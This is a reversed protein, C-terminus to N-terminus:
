VTDGKTGRSSNMRKRIKEINQKTQEIEIKAGIEEFIQLAQQLHELAKDPEGKDDFLMGMNHLQKAEWERNGIDRDVKLARQYYDLAKDHEKQSLYINGINVLDQAQGERYGIKKDIKLAQQHCDLAKDLKKQSLYINGINGLANAEGWKRGMEREIKFVREYLELAKDMEGETQYVLGTNGLAAALGEDDKAQTAAAEAERYHGEAEELESLHFCCNGILIHLAARQSTTTEPQLCAAYYKIAEPFKYETELNQAELFPDRISPPAQFLGDLYEVLRCLYDEIGSVKRELKKSKGRLRPLVWANIAWAIVILVAVLSVWGWWTM